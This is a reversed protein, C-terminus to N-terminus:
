ALPITLVELLLKPWPQSCLLGLLIHTQSLRLHSQTPYSYCILINDGKYLCSARSEHCLIINGDLNARMHYEPCAPLAYTLHIYSSSIPLPYTCIIWDKALWATMCQCADMSTDRLLHIILGECHSAVQVALEQFTQHVISGEHRTFLRGSRSPVRGRRAGSVEGVMNM